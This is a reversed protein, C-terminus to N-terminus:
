ALFAGALGTRIAVGIKRRVSPMDDFQGDFAQGTALLWAMLLM